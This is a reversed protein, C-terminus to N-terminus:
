VSIVFGSPGDVIATSGVRNRLPKWDKEQVAVVCPVGLSRAVLALHSLPGGHCIVIGAAFGVVPVLALDATDALLVYRGPLRKLEEPDSEDALLLRGAGVGRSGPKGIAVVDASAPGVVVRQESSLQYEVGGNMARLQGIGESPEGYAPQLNALKAPRCQLLWLDGDEITFEVDVPGDWEKDLAAVASMLSASAQPSAEFLGELTSVSTKGEVAATGQRSAVYDVVPDQAGTQPDRSFCIGSGSRGNLNGFKMEQVLIATGEREGRLIKRYASSKTNKWSSQVLEFALKFQEVKSLKGGGDAHVGLEDWLEARMERITSHPFGRASLRIVERDDLGVNLVTRMRGPMSQAAGSRVSFCGNVLEIVGAWMSEDFRTNGIASVWAVPVPLGLKYMSWLGAAKRGYKQAVEEISHAAIADVRLATM